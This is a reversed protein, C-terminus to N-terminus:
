CLLHQCTPLDPWQAVRRDAMQHSIFRRSWYSVISVPLTHVANVIDSSCSAHTYTQENMHVHTHTFICLKLKVAPLFFAQFTTVFKWNQISDSLEIVPFQKVLRSNVMMINDM